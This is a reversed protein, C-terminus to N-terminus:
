PMLRQEKLEYLFSTSIMYIDGKGNKPLSMDRILKTYDSIKEKEAISEIRTFFMRKEDFSFSPCYEFGNSNIRNGLNIAKLWHGENNKFSVFLDGNGFGEGWGHSTFILLDGAKNIFSNYEDAPTNISDGFNEPSQYSGNKFESYWLDERGKGDEYSATFVMTGESTFSPYFENAETNVPFELCIPESEIGKKLDIYWINYDRTNDEKHQPRNSVFYLNGDPHFVPEIDSHLGSFPALRPRTWKDNKLESYCIVSAGRQLNISYFFLNGDPSLAADREDMFTNIIGPEFLVATSPETKTHTRNCSAFFFFSLTFLGIIIKM